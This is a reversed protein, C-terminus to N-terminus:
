TEPHKNIILEPGFKILIHISEYLAPFIPGITINTTVRHKLYNPRLSAQSDYILKCSNKLERVIIIVEIVQSEVPWNLQVDLM